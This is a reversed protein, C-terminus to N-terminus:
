TRVSGARGQKETNQGLQLEKTVFQMDMPSNLSEMCTLVRAEGHEEELTHKGMKDGISSDSTASLSGVDNRNEELQSEGEDVLAPVGSGVKAKGKGKRSVDIGAKTDIKTNDHTTNNAGLSNERRGSGGHNSEGTSTPSGRDPEGSVTKSKRSSEARLKIGWQKEGENLSSRYTSRVSCGSREHIIRGSHFCFLPLKEYKFDVWHIQDGLHLARGRELPKTLDMNVRIRLCRGWGVGEGAVDVDELVGMSEGIKEGVRKTMCLLPMDHVQVWIPSHDFKMHPPPTTGDFENLVLIHRDFSWSRGEMVRRKDENDSFEFLWLNEQLEKFVVRGMLRWIRSFVTKFTEKNAVKDMWLKGVLCMTGQEKVEEVEGELITIGRKEGEKLSIKNCLCAIEEAM